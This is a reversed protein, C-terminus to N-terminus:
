IKVQKRLEPSQLDVGTISLLNEQWYTSIGGMIGMCSSFFINFILFQM